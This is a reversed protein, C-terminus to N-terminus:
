QGTSRPRREPRAGAKLAVSSPGRDLVEKLEAVVNDDSRRFPARGCPELGRGVTGIDAIDEVNVVGQACADDHAEEATERRVIVSFSSTTKWQSSSSGSGTRTCTAKFAAPPSCFVMKTAADAQRASRGTDEDQRHTRCHHGEAPRRDEGQGHDVGLGARGEGHVVHSRRGQREADEEEVRIAAPRGCGGWARGACAVSVQVQALELLQQDLPRAARDVDLPGGAFEGTPRPRWTGCGVNSSPAPLSCRAPGPRSRGRGNLLASSWSM